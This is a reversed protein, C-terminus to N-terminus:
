ARTVCAHTQRTSCHHTTGGPRVRCQIVNCEWKQVNGPVDLLPADHRRAAAHRPVRPAPLADRGRGGVRGSALHHLVIDHVAICRSAHTTIYYPVYITIYYPTHSTIHYLTIYRLTAYHLTIYHLAIYHLAICRLATCHLAVCQLATCRSSAAHRLAICHVSISRWTM